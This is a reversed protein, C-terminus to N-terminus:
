EYKEGLKNYYQRLTQEMSKTFIRRGISVEDAGAKKIQVINDMNVGGDVCIKFPTPDKERLVALRKIKELSKKQFKQGGFGARVSMVIVVDLDMLIDKEIESVPTDLDIAVGVKAGKQQTEQVFERQSSMMEIQGIIRDAFGRMAAELWNVPEKVMLHYDFFLNTEITSLVEPRITKNDVFVGDIIDIQVRDVNEQSKEILEQLKKFDNTLIAPIIQTM